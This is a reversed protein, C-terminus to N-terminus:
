KLFHELCLIGKLFYAPGLGEACVGEIVCGAKVELTETSVSDHYM